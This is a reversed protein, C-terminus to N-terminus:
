TTWIRSWGAGTRARCPGCPGVPGTPGPFPPLWSNAAFARAPPVREVDALHALVITRFCSPGKETSVADAFRRAEDATLYPAITPMVARYLGWGKLGKEYLQALDGVVTRKDADPLIPVLLAAVDVLCDPQGSALAPAIQALLRKRLRRAVDGTADRAASLLARASGCENKAAREDREIALIM